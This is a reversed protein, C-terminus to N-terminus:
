KYEEQPFLLDPQDAGSRDGGLLFGPPVRYFLAARLIIEDRPRRKGSEYAKLAQVTIGLAQAAQIEGTSGRLRRLREGVNEM